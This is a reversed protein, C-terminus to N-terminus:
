GVYAVMCVVKAKAAATKAIGGKASQRRPCLRGRKRGMATSTGQAADADAFIVQASQSPDSQTPMGVGAAPRDQPGNVM